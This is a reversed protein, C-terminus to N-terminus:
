VNAAVAEVVVAGLFRSGAGVKSVARRACEAKRCGLPCPRDAKDLRTGCTACYTGAALPNDMGLALRLPAFLRAVTAAAFSQAYLPTM